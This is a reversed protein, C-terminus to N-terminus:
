LFIEAVHVSGDPYWPRYPKDIERKYAQTWPTEAEFSTSVVQQAIMSPMLNYIPEIFQGGQKLDIPLKSLRTDSINIEQEALSEPVPEIRIDDFWVKGASNNFANLAVGVRGPSPVRFLVSERQWGGSRPPASFGQDGAQAEIGIRPADNPSGSDSSAAARIWGTLRWLTGVPLFVEQHLTVNTPHEAAVLLSQSGEKADGKDLSISFEPKAESSEVQWFEAVTAAEFGGDKLPQNKAGGFILLPLLPILFWFRATPMRMPKKLRSLLCSTSMKRFSLEIM